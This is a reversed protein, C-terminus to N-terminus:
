DYIMVMRRRENLAVVSAWGIKGAVAIATISAKSAAVAANFVTSCMSAEAITRLVYVLDRLFLITVGNSASNLSPDAQSAQLSIERKLLRPLM